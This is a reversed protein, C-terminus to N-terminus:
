GAKGRRTWLCDFTALTFFVIPPAMMRLPSQKVNLIHSGLSASFFLVAEGILAYLVGVLVKYLRGGPGLVRFCLAIVPYGLLVFISAYRLFM